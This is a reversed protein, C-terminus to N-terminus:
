LAQIETTFPPVSARMRIRSFNRLQLYSNMMPGISSGLWINKNQKRTPSCFITLRPWILLIYLTILWNLAVTVCCGNYGHVCQRTHMVPANDQHFLVGKTLKGPRKSKIAKRLQMLLNVYYEGNITQGKQLYAIFWYGKCGLLRLGDGKWSIVCAGQGEKPLPLFPTNGSRPNDNPRM